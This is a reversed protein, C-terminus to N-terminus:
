DTDALRTKISTNVNPVSRVRFENVWSGDHNSGCRTVNDLLRKIQVYRRTMLLVPALVTLFIISASSGDIEHTVLPVVINIHRIMPFVSLSIVLVMVFLVALLVVITIMPM